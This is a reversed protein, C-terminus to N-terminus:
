KAMFMPLLINPVFDVIFHATINIWLNRKRLYVATLVAATLFAILIGAWGQRYHVVAFLVLPFSWSWFRSGTLRQLRDIAYGRYFFEEIFGARAVVLLIVLMPLKDFAAADPSGMPLAILKILVLALALAPVICLITLLVWLATNGAAPRELGVSDWGLREKRRIIFALVGGLGFVILERLVINWTTFPVHLVTFLAIVLPAALLSVFLGLLLWRGPLPGAVAGRPELPSSPSVQM